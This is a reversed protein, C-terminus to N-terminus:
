IVQALNYIPMIIAFVMIAVGVGIIVILIPELLSSLKKMESDTELEYYGTLSKLIEDLKGTKEGIGIMHSIMAPFYKNKSLPVNLPVGKEVQQYANDLSKEYVMNDMVDSVIKITQLIPIGTATLLSFIRCFRAMYALQSIRSFIPMKIKALDIQYRGAATKGWARIVVFIGIVLLIILWWFRQLAHSTWLVARTAWPLQVGAELFIVELQPVVKVMMIAGIILMVVVIFIPYVMAGRIKSNFEYERDLNDSLQRLVKPLKGSAEGAKVANIFVHSFIEPYKGIAASFSHGGELEHIIKAITEKFKKNTTQLLIISLGQLIPFGAELITALQKAFIVKDRITVRGFISDIFSFLEKKSKLSIVTLKNQWLIKEAKSEDEAILTGYVTQGEQNRAEFEYTIAM